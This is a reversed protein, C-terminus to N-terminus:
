VISPKINKRCNSIVIQIRKERTEPRKASSVWNIYQNQYSKAFNQFNQWGQQNKILENKLYDPLQINQNTSYAKEWEGNKKAIEVMRNGAPTMKNSETLKLVRNKNILSWKSKEKRPTYKQMYSDNDIRKVTSDIWGYCLAEEVAEGYVVTEKKTHKKYYILWIERETKHNQELWLRWEARNRCFITEM